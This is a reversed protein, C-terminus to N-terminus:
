LYTTNIQNNVGPFMTLIKIMKTRIKMKIRKIKNKIKIKIKIKDKNQKDSVNKKRLKPELM